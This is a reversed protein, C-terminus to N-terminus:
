IPCSYFTPLAEPSHICPRQKYGYQTHTLWATPQAQCICLLYSCILNPLLLPLHVASLLNPLSLLLATIIAFACCIPASSIYATYLGMVAPDKSTGTNQIYVVRAAYQKLSTKGQAGGSQQMPLLEKFTIHSTAYEPAM